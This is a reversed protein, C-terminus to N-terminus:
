DHRVRQIEKLNNYVNHLGYRISAHIKDVANHKKMSLHRLANATEDDYDSAPTHDVVNELWSYSRVIRYVRKKDLIGKNEPDTACEDMRFVIKKGIEEAIEDASVKLFQHDDYITAYNGKINSLGVNAYENKHAETIMM